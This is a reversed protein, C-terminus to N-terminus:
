FDFPIVLTLSPSPRYVPAPVYAVPPPAYVYAPAVYHYQYPAVYTYRKKAHGPPGYHHHGNWGRHRDNDAAAPAATVGAVLLTVALAAAARGIMKRSKAGNGAMTM